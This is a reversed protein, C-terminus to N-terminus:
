YNLAYNIVKTPQNRILDNVTEIKIGTLTFVKLYSNVQIKLIVENKERELM